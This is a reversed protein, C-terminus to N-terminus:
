DGTVVTEKSKRIYDKGLIWGGSALFSLVGMMFVFVMRKPSSAKRAVVAPQVTVFVPTREQVKARALQLQQFAQSYITYALEMENELREGEQTYRELILGKYADAFSAYKRQAEEYDEKSEQAIKEMYALDNRAKSTRYDTIYTQLKEKIVNAMYAAVYADQMEVRITVRDTRKDGQCAVMSGVAKVFEYQKKTLRYVESSDKVGGKLIVDKDEDKEWSFLAFFGGWWPMKQHEMVYSYFSLKKEEEKKRKLTVPVDKLDLVFPVSSLVKPYFEPLIADEASAGGMKIGALSALSALNGSLGGQSVEPLLVVSSTYGRPISLIYIISLVLVIGCCKLIFMRGKWLTRIATWLRVFMSDAIRDKEMEM